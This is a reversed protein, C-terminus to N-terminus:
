GQSAEAVRQWIRALRRRETSSMHDLLLSRLVRNHVPRAQKLRQDGADTLEAFFKRRDATDVVRDVLGHRELRTILHTLGSPSLLASQALSTMGLRRDEANYLTILVDFETVSLGVASQLETDLAHLTGQTLALLANWAEYEESELFEHGKASADM